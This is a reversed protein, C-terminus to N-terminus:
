RFISPKKIALDRAVFNMMAHDILHNVQQTVLILSFSSNNFFYISFILLFKLSAAQTGM